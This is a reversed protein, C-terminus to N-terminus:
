MKMQVKARPIDSPKEKLINQRLGFSCDKCYDYHDFKEVDTPFISNEEASIEEDFNQENRFDWERLTFYHLM